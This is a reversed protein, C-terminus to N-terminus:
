HMTRFRAIIVLNEKGFSRLSIGQPLKLIATSPTSFSTPKGVTLGNTFPRIPHTLSATGLSTGDNSVVQQSPYFFKPDTTQEM